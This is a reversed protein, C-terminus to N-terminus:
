ELLMFDFDDVILGPIKINNRINVIKEPRISLIQDNVFLIDALPYM